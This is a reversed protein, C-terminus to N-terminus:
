HVDRSCIAGLSGRQFRRHHDSPGISYRVKMDHSVGGVLAELDSPCVFVIVQHPRCNFRERCLDDASGM